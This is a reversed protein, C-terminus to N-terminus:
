GDSMLLYGVLEARVCARVIMRTHTRARTQAHTRVHMHARAHARMRTNTRTHSRLVAYCPMTALCFINLCGAIKDVKDRVASDLEEDVTPLM